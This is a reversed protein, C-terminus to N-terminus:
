TNLVDIFTSGFDTLKRRLSALWKLTNMQQGLVVRKKQQGGGGGGGYGLATAMTFWFLETRAVSTKDKVM